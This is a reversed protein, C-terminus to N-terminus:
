DIGLAKLRAYLLEARQESKEARQREQEAKQEAQEAKMEAEERMKRELKSKQKEAQYCPLMFHKYVDDESMEELSPRSSLHAIRIQFGPLVSSSIIGNIPEIKTYRGSELQYILITEHDSVPKEELIGNNWELHIDSLEYYEKWYEKESVETTVPYNDAEEYERPTKWLIDESYQWLLANQSLIEM